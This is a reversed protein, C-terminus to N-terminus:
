VEVEAMAREEQAVDAGALLEPWLLFSVVGIGVGLWLTCFRTLLAAGTAVAASLGFIRRSLAV